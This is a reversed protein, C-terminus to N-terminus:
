KHLQVKSIIIAELVGAAAEARDNNCGNGYRRTCRITTATTSGVVIQNICRGCLFNGRRTIMLRGEVVEESRPSRRVLITLEDLLNQSRRIGISSDDSGVVFVVVIFLGMLAWETAVAEFANLGKGGVLVVAVLM